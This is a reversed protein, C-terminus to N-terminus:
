FRRIDKPPRFHLPHTEPTANEDEKWMKITKDAECTVLKTGKVDYSCAYIGAESDLSGPQVITQSQQFNHGSKWDWFWLSGNDGGTAMVGEENVAMANIITKQQSLMNHM